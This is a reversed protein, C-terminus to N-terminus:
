EDRRYFPLGTVEAAANTGSVEIELRTGLPVAERRVYGFAIPMRLHPSFVAGTISGVKTGDKYIHAGKPPTVTGEIRLGVLRKNVQGRASAREVIEQGLYCGKHFDLGRELGAELVLHSEDFDIGVYPIGAEIRLIEFAAMGVGQLGMPAGAALVAQWVGAADSTRVILEYGSDGTWRVSAVVVPVDGIKASVHALETAPVDADVLGRLIEAARPGQIGLTTEIGARDEIEVEDAVLFKELHARARDKVRADVDLRLSDEMCLVNADAVVRSERTLLTAYCGTGPRLSAIDNSLLNHLFTARDAGTFRLGTRFSLDFLGASARAQRCEKLPDGYAEVLEIGGYDHFVAGRARGFEAFPSSFYPMVSRPRGYPDNMM